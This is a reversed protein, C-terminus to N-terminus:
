GCVSRFAMTLVNTGRRNLHIGDHCLHERVIMDHLRILKAPPIGDGLRLNIISIADDYTITSPVARPLITCIGWARIATLPRSTRDPRYSDEQSTGEACQPRRYPDSVEKKLHPPPPGEPVGRHANGPWIGLYSSQGAERLWSLPCVSTSDVGDGRVGSTPQRSLAYLWDNSLRLCM